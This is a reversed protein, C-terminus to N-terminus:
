RQEVGGEPSIHRAALRLVSRTAPTVKYRDDLRHGVIWMIGHSDEVIPTLMREDRPVKENVFFDHLKMMGAAGLPHFRDGRRWTRVFVPERVREFDLMARDPGEDRVSAPGTLQAEVELGLARVRTIGPLSLAELVGQPRPEEADGPVRMSLAGYSMAVRLGLPLHLQRGTRGRALELVAEVHGQELYAIDGRLERVAERILRKQLVPALRRLRGADLVIEDAGQRLVIRPMRARVLESLYASEERALSGLRLLHRRIAPYEHELAPLVELRLRNREMQVSMNSSDLRPSLGAEACYQEVDACTLEYLPRIIRGRAIPMGGLGDLGAGRLINLLITEVQDDATHGVAIRNAGVRDAVSELFEYRVQRAAQEISLGGERAAAAVDRAEVTVPVKLGECLSQVYRADEEAEAGRLMHNLHAAHLSIELVPALSVLAHLLATSDPGGSVAALVLDGARVLGHKRITALVRDEFM